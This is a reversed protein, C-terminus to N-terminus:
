RPQAAPEEEERPPFEFSVKGMDDMVLFAKFPRGTKSSIFHDLLDSRSAALLKARDPGLLRTNFFDSLAKLLPAEGVM